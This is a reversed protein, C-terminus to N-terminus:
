RVNTTIYKTMLTRGIEEIKNYRYIGFTKINTKITTSIQHIQNIIRETVDAAVVKILIYRKFYLVRVYDTKKVEKALRCLGEHM